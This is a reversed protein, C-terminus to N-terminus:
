KASRKAAEQIKSFFTPKYQESTRSFIFLGSRGRSGKELYEAYDVISFLSGKYKPNSFDFLPFVINAKPNLSKVSASNRDADNLTLSKVSISAQFAGSDVPAENRIQEQLELLSENLALQLNQELKKAFDTIPKTNAKSHVDFM